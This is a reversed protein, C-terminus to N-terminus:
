SFNLHIIESLNMTLKEIEGILQITSQRTKPSLKENIIDGITKQRTQTGDNDLTEIMSKEDNLYVPMEKKRIMQIILLKMDYASMQFENALADIKISSFPLLYYRIARRFAVDPVLDVTSQLAEDTFLVKVPQCLTRCTKYDNDSYAKFLNSVPSLQNQESSKELLRQVLDNTESNSLMLSIYYLQSCKILLMTNHNESMYQISQEFRISAREYMKNILCNIGDAYSIFEPFPENSYEFDKPFFFQSALLSISQTDEPNEIIKSTLMLIILRHTTGKFQDDESDFVYMLQNILLNVNVFLEKELTFVYQYLQVTALCVNLCVSFSEPVPNETNPYNPPISLFLSEIHEKIEEYEIKRSRFYSLLADFTALLGGIEAERAFIISLEKILPIRNIDDKELSRLSEKITEKRKEVEKKNFNSEKEDSRQM